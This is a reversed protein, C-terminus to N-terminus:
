LGLLLEAHVFEARCAVVKAKGDAHLLGFDHVLWSRVSGLM